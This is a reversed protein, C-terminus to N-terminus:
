ESDSVCKMMEEYGHLVTGSSRPRMEIANARQRQWPSKSLDDAGGVLQMTIPHSGSFAHFPFPAPSETSPVPYGMMVWRPAVNATQVLRQHAFHITSWVTVGCNLTLM